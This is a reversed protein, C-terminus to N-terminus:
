RSVEEVALGAAVTLESADVDGAAGPRAERVVRAEVPIGLDAGVQEVFGPVSVAPGTLLARAVEIGGEQSRQFDLTNRVDDAVRRAGDALVSRAETLIDPDGDLVDTPTVLGVHRLWGRAHESTLGRREALQTVMSEMGGPVARTFRCVTGEAIAVNTMGAVNVYLVPEAGEVGGTDLARVMAFASLDIGVPRLGADKVALLLREVMERRAAVLAVRTREGDPTQVAGLSQFDIVAQDLPMPIHEQAQFRVAAALDKPNDILPLDLTRLVIRQNAVGLRVRRGLGHERFLTRLVDALSQPDNVEGERVVESPLSATVAREVGVVGNVSAEVAAVHGPEIDLGVVRRRATRTNAMQSRLSPAGAHAYAPDRAVAEEPM